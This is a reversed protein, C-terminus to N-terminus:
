EGFYPLLTAHVAADIDLDVSSYQVWVTVSYLFSKLVDVPLVFPQPTRKRQIHDLYRVADVAYSFRYKVEFSHDNGPPTDAEWQIIDGLPEIDTQISWVAEAIEIWQDPTLDHLRHTLELLTPM